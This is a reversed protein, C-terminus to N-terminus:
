SAKKNEPDTSEFDSLDIDAAALEAKLQLMRLYHEHSREMMDLDRTKVAADEANEALADLAHAGRTMASSLHKVTETTGVLITSILTAAETINKAKM